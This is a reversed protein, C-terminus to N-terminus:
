VIFCAAWGWSSSGAGDARGAGRDGHRHAVRASASTATCWSRRATCTRQTAPKTSPAGSLPVGNVGADAGETVAPAPDTVTPAVPAALASITSPAATRLPSPDIGAFETDM